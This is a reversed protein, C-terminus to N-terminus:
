MWRLKFAIYDKKSTIWLYEYISSHVYHIKNDKLWTSFEVTLFNAKKDLLQKKILLEYNLKFKTSVFVHPIGQMIIIPGVAVTILVPIVVFLLPIKFARWNIMSNGENHHTAWRITKRLIGIRLTIFDEEEVHFVLTLLSMVLIFILYGMVCFATFISILISM